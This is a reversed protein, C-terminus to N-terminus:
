KAEESYQQGEPGIVMERKAMNAIDGFYRTVKRIDGFLKALNKM